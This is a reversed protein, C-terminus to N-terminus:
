RSNSQRAPLTVPVPGTVERKHSSSVDEGLLSTPTVVQIYLHVKWCLAPSQQQKGHHAFGEWWLHSRRTQLICLYSSITRFWLIFTLIRLHFTPFLQVSNNVTGRSKPPSTARLGLGCSTQEAHVFHTEWSLLHGTSRWSLIGRKPVWQLLRVHVPHICGSWTVSGMMAATTKTTNIKPWNLSSFKAWAPMELAPFM